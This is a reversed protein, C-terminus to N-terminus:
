YRSNSVSKEWVAARISFRSRTMVTSVAIAWRAPAKPLGTHNIFRYADQQRHSGSPVPEGHYGVSRCNRWVVTPSQVDTTAATRFAKFTSIRSSSLDWRPSTALSRDGTVLRIGNNAILGLAISFIRKTLAVRNDLWSNKAFAGNPRDSGM